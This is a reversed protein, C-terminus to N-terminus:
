LRLHCTCGVFACPQHLNFILFSTLCEEARRIRDHCLSLNRKLHRRRQLYTPKSLDLSIRRVLYHASCCSPHTVALGLKPQSGLFNPMLTISLPSQETTTVMARRRQVLSSDCQSARFFPLRLVLTMRSSSICHHSFMSAEIASHLQIVSFAISM